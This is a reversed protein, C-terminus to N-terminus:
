PRETEGPCRGRTTDHRDEHRDNVSDVRRVRVDRVPTVPTRNQRRPRTLVPDQCTSERLTAQRESRHVIILPCRTTREPPWSMLEFCVSIRNKVHALSTSFYDLFSTPKVKRWM